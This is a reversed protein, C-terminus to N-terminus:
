DWYIKYDTVPNSSGGTATGSSPATWTLKVATNTMATIDHSLGSMVLPVTEITAGSSNIQSYVGWGRSNRARVRVRILENVNQGTITRITSM